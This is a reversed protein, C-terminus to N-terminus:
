VRDFGCTRGGPAGASVGWVGGVGGLSGLPGRLAVGKGWPFGPARAASERLVSLVVPLVQPQPLAPHTVVCAISQGHAASSPVMNYQSAVTVTGDSQPLETANASGLLSSRWTVNAAPKAGAATCVAVPTSAGGARVERSEASISPRAAGAGCPNFQLGPTGYGWRILGPDPRTGWGGVGGLILGPDPGGTGM